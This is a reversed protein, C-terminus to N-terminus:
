AEDRIKRGPIVEVLNKLEGAVTEMQARISEKLSADKKLIDAQVDSKLLGKLKAVVADLDSDDTVNRASFTDLFDQINTVASAFLRKPKGDANPTLVNALHSTLEYLSERMFATIENSAEEMKAQLKANAIDYLGKAKLVEPISVTQYEFDFYFKSRMVNSPPYDSLQGLDGLELMANDRRAPYTEMFADILPPRTVADYEELRANVNELLHLPLLRIGMSWPLCQTDVWTRIQGDAKKIAELEPSELLQKQAKVLKSKYNGGNNKGNEAIDVITSDAMLAAPNVEMSDSVIQISSNPIKKTNGPLGFSLRLFVTKDTTPSSKM